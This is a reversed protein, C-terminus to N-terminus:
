DSRKNMANKYPSFTVMGDFSEIVKVDNLTKKTMGDFSTEKAKPNLPPLATNSVIRHHAKQENLRESNM